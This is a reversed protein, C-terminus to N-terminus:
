ATGHVSGSGRNGPRHFHEFSTKGTWPRDHATSTVRPGGPAGAGGAFYRRSGAFTEPIPIDYANCREDIHILSSLLEDKTLTNINPHQRTHNGIEFGDEHLERIEEWTVYHDKNSLFGLGETIYFTAGFGYEKLLPAVYNYDSKNGDDFNLVVLKDPIPKLTENQSIASNNKQMNVKITNGQTRGM